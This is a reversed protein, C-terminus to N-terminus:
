SYIELDSLNKLDDEDFIQKESEYNYGVSEERISTSSNEGKSKKLSKAFANIQYAIESITKAIQSASEEDILERSLARNLWYKAEFVSGRAYYLFHVKESFHYRGYSEAINAGISDVARIWQIGFSQRAFYDWNKVTEWIQDSVEESLKLVNLNDLGSYKM